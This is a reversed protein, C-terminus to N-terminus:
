RNAYYQSPSVGLLKKMAHSFAASDSFGCKYAAQTVSVGDCLLRAACRIRHQLLYQYPTIQMHQRFLRIFYNTELHLNQAIESITIPQAYQDHIIELASRIRSDTVCSIQKSELLRQTMAQCLLKACSLSPPQESLLQTASECMQLLVPDQQPSISIVTSAFLSPISTFDFYLHNIPNEPNQGVSFPLNQPFFYFNGPIFPFRKDGEWYWAEGGTVYYLRNTGPFHDLNWNAPALSKGLTYFMLTDM